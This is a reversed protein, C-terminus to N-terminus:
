APKSRRRGLDVGLAPRPVGMKRVVVRFGEWGERPLSSPVKETSRVYLFLSPHGDAEGTGVMLLWPEDRFKEQLSRAAKQVDM